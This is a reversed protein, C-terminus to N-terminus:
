HCSELLADIEAQSITVDSDSYNESALQKTFAEAMQRKRRIRAKIEQARKLITESPAGGEVFDDSSSFESSDFNDIFEQILDLEHKLSM